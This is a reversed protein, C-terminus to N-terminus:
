SNSNAKNQMRQLARDIKLERDIRYLIVKEELQDTQMLEPQAFFDRHMEIQKVVQVKVAPRGSNKGRVTHILIRYRYGSGFNMEKHAPKFRADGKIYDTELVGAELNAIKQPYKVMVQSIARDVADPEAYFVEEVPVPRADDPRKNTQSCGTLAASLLLFSIFRM